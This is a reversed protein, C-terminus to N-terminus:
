NEALKSPLNEYNNITTSQFKTLISNFRHSVTLQTFRVTVGLEMKKAFGNGKLDGHQPWSGTTHTRGVGLENLKRRPAPIATYSYILPEWGPTCTGGPTCKGIQLPENLTILLFYFYTQM